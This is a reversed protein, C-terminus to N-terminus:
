FKKDKYANKVYDKMKNTSHFSIDNLILYNPVIILNGDRDKGRPIIKKYKKFPIIKYVFELKIYLSSSSGGELHFRKKYNKIEFTYATCDKETKDSRLDDIELKSLVDRIFKIKYNKDNIDIGFRQLFLVTEDRNIQIDFKSPDDLCIRLFDFLCYVVEKAYYEKLKLADDLNSSNTVAMKNIKTPLVYYEKGQEKVFIENLKNINEILYDTFKM